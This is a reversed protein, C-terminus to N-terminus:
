SASLREALKGIQATLPHSPYKLAFPWSSSLTML